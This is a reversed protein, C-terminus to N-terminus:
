YRWTIQGYVEPGVKYAVNSTIPAFESYTGHTLNRGAVSVEFNKGNHWALRTDFVIYNPIEPSVPSTPLLADMYRGILDFQWHDGMNWSSQLYVQNCPTDGPDEASAIMGPALHLFLRTYTYACQLRWQESVSYNLALEAGYTQGSMGNQYQQQAFIYPLDYVYGNPSFAELKDYQNYFLALDWSFRETAQVRVGLEYALLEESQLGPNGVVQPFVFPPTLPPTNVSPLTTQAFDTQQTPMHVARSVAAWLSCKKNPTCLLRVTPQFEFNTYPDHEFKSGGILFWRDEELTIQDQVFYSFYNDFRDPPNVSIFFASSPETNVVSDKWFRYGCGCIIEHRDGLPFRYQFDCDLLDTDLAYAPDLYHRETRDYYTQFTWDSDDDITHKWRYLINEGTVHIDNSPVSFYPPTPQPTPIQNPVLSVSKGDYYDGQLTMADCRGADYDMRFGSRGQHWADPGTGGDPLFEPGRDFWRGYFRYYLDDGIRGGARANTYGLEHSGAGGQVLVGQTDQAKKTIINIVGNVANAGWITAGPGRVVEIRDVDELILDQVDWIVGGFFLDYVTRGDIQVLLKNSYQTNFGRASVAWEDSSIQAVQVGPVMRLVDPITQAGSRRIMENTVVFVAAPTKGVTSAQREVTSVPQDLSPSGTHGSVNVNSLQGVDKDAMDLLKDLSGPDVGGADANSQGSAAGQGGGATNQGYSPNSLAAGLLLILSCLTARHLQLDM